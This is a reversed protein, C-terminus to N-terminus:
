LHDAYSWRLLTWAGSMKSTKSKSDIIDQSNGLWQLFSLTLVQGNFLIVFANMFKIEEKLKEVMQVVTERDEAM